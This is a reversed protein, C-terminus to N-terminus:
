RELSLKISITDIPDLQFRIVENSEILLPVMISGMIIVEGARLRQGFAALLDAVHRVNDVYDGTMAQVDTVTAVEHENRYVRATLGDLVCGARSADARGLIIHRNYINAALMAEVDDQAFSVDALEFAPGISAIAARATERDSGEHVDQGIYVAVEPELAPKTWGALSLTASSDLVIADTLFGVLPANLQLRELAAPTGAGAKWGIPKEGADLRQQRLKMQKQMGRVIRPDNYSTNM